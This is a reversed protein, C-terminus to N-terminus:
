SAVVLVQKLAPGTYKRSAFNTTGTDAATNDLHPRSCAGHQRALKMYFHTRGLKM